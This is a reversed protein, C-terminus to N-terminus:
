IVENTCVWNRVQKLNECEWSDWPAEEKLARLALVRGTAGECSYIVQVLPVAQRCAGDTGVVWLYFGGCSRQWLTVTKGLAANVAESHQRCLWHM